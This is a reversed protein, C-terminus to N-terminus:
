KHKFLAGNQTWPYGVALSFTATIQQSASLVQYEMALPQHSNSDETPVAILTFGPGATTVTNGNHTGSGIVLDGALSPAMMGSSPATGSGVAGATKDLPSVTDVGSFEVVTMSIQGGSNVTNFTVRDTGGKANKSYYIASYAGQSTLVTGAISYTNGLSDTVPTSAPLNPWGSVSVVILNGATVRSTLSTTLSRASSTINAAKQVLSIGTVLNSVTVTVASSTGINGAADYAKATLTHSGNSVQLTNWSWTYPTGTITANLAGDLYFEVKTVGMNDSANASVATTGSVTAGNTPSSISVTPTTTDAVNNVTLSVSASSNNGAADYATAKISHSGNSALSTNWAWNYPSSTVTAQLVNDLYFEVKAVGVNDSANASVTVTGSVTSGNQPATISVAPPTNDPGQTVAPKFMVGNQTWPYGVALSFTAATQQNGSLVEYEMALPQHSNSDETPIAILTFGSGPTTTTNGNHTGSGIVLEGSMSPTMMGSTPTTGSGATGATQDLPSATDAGYFEAVVMSIQGGSKVTNVTVTDSGGIVDKAYYIASYAGQSTFVTGAISYTNGLSDTVATSAPLNPWGSVSVVILNGSSVPFPMTTALSLASTSVNSAKQVLSIPLYGGGGGNSVLILVPQSATENGAPDRAIAFLTHQGTAITTTDLSTSCPSSTCEQGISTGDLVFQIGAVMNNDSANATVDIKGAVSAGNQPSTIAVTPPELDFTVPQNTLTFITDASIQATFIGGSVSVDTKRSLNAASSTEYQALTSVAPLNSFQGNITITSNGTNRGTIAIKGSAANYVAVATPINSISNSTGIVVDGAGIFHDFHTYAYARKRPTYVDSDPEYALLGWLDTANHHYWFSDYGDWILLGPFGNVIDGLIIDTTQKAFSWENSPGAGGADCGDCWASTETVWYSKGPYSTGPSVPSGSYGHFALHDLLGAVTSDAMMQGIYGTILSSTDPGVLRVDGLGMYSLEVALDHLITTYQTANVTPGEIGAGLDPENLPSLYTFDLGKVKKGYYVLSAVMTAFEQEKGATIYSAVGNSGSGGIWTPTWGMFSLIIQRGGIGKQNLYSITNWIDQMKATEYVQRLTSSDLNHLAPILSESTVWDMPDRIVRYLTSGNTTVLFDLAPKLLGNNWSNVNINVGMGDITQFTKAGDVTLNAAQASFYPFFILTGILILFVTANHILHLENKEKAVNSLFSASAGIVKQLYRMKNEELFNLIRVDTV